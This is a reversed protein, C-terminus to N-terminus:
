EPSSSGAFQSDFKLSTASLAVVPLLVALSHDTAPGSEIVVAGTLESVQEPIDGTGGFAIKGLEGSENGGWAWVTGDSKMALGQGAGAVLGLVGELGPVQVPVNSTNVGNGLDTSGKDGWAWVASDAKLALSHGVGAAIGAVQELGAVRVPVNSDETAANGLEGSTNDGWAWVTGSSNVALSHGAGAAIRVVDQLGSIQVPV